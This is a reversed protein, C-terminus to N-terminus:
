ALWYPGGKLPHVPVVSRFVDAIMAVGSAVGVKQRSNSHRRSIAAALKPEVCSRVDQRDTSTIQDQKVCFIMAMSSSGYRRGIFFSNCEIRSKPHLAIPRNSLM